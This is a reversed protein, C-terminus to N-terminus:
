INKKEPIFIDDAIYLTDDLDENTITILEQVTAFARAKSGTDPSTKSEKM